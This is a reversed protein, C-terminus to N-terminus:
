IKSITYNLIKKCLLLWIVIQAKGYKIVRINWHSALSKKLIPFLLNAELVTIDRRRRDTFLNRFPLALNYLSYIVTSEDPETGVRRKQPIFESRFVLKADFGILHFM